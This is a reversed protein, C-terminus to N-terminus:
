KQKELIPRQGFLELQNRANMDFLGFDAPRQPKTPALPASALLALRDSLGIPKVGPVLAQVGAVTPEVEFREPVPGSAGDARGGRRLDTGM